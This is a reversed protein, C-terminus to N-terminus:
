RAGGASDVLLADAPAHFRELPLTTSAHPLIVVRSEPGHRAIAQDIAEQLTSASHQRARTGADPSLPPGVVVVHRTVGPRRRYYEGRITKCRDSIQRPPLTNDRREHELFIQDFSWGAMEEQLTRPRDTAGNPRVSGPESGTRAPGEGNILITTGGPRCALIAMDLASAAMTQRSRDGPAAIVIDARQGIEAGWVNRDGWSIGSRHAELRHGAFAAFPEGRRNIVFNVIFELGAMSGIEDVDLRSPNNVLSGHEAFPSFNTSHNRLVTLWHSVAPTIMKAGGEYGHTLHPGIRGVAIRFDADAVTKSIWVPTGRSTQGIFTMEHEVADHAICRYTDHVQAGVKRIMDEENMPQHVGSGTMVTIDQRRAGALEVEALIAPLVRSAPTPRGWDDAIVVVRKGALDHDRLRPAGIPTELAELVIDEWERTLPPDKSEAWTIQEDALAVEGRITRDDFTLALNM